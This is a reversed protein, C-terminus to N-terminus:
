RVIGGIIKWPANVADVMSISTSVLVPFSASLVQFWISRELVALM